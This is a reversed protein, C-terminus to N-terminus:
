RTLFSKDFAAPNDQASFEPLSSNQVIMRISLLLFLQLPSFYVHTPIKNFHGFISLTLLINIQFRHSNKSELASNFAFNVDRQCLIEILLDILQSKRSITEKDNLGLIDIVKTTKIEQYLQGGWLSLLILIVAKHAIKVM